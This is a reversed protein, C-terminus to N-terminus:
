FGLRNIPTNSRQLNRLIPLKNFLSNIKTDTVTLTFLYFQFDGFPNVTFALNWCDLSRRLQFRSPTLEKEIFEYGISTNFSWKPTLKFAINPINVTATKQFDFTGKVRDFRRRVSYDLNLSFSWDTRYPEVSMDNFNPQIAGFISQDLPDYFAPYAIGQAKIGRPGGSFRTSARISLSNLLFPRRSENFLLTNTRTGTSDYAYFDFNASVTIAIQNLINSRLNSSLNSLPNREAAFNYSTNFSLNDILRITEEKKVGTSDRDIKKTELSNNVSFTISQSRGANPGGVIGGEFISYTRGTTDGQVPRYYGWQDDSFDPTYTYGITPRLTHRFGKYAGLRQQSIGYITTAVNFSTDFTRASAFGTIREDVTTQQGNEDTEVSRRITSPYWYENFRVSATGTTAGSTFLNGNISAAQRFGAQFHQDDNTVAEYKDRDFLADIWNIDETNLSDIPSFRYNTNLANDYNITVSEYWKANNSSAENQFPTLPQIRFTASPLTLSTVGTAFNSSQDANINISYISEPHRYTYNLRSTTSVEARDGIDFSNQQNYQSTRLNINASIRAFPSIDQNHSLAFNQQRSQSYSPDTPELGQINSFGYQVNGSYRKAKNSYNARTDFNFSGSTFYDLSAEGTLYENFVQFWGMNTVGLGRNNQDQFAYTPTLLGSEREEINSPIYGFPFVFPYPIDMIYLMADTFFIQEQDVVKMRRAKIYYNPVPVDCPSYIGNRVFIVDQSTNKVQGGRLKGQPVTIEAQNFKGKNTEYNFLIRNSRIRDADRELIPYSLTDTDDLSKASVLSSDLNLSVLGASLRGAEHNVQARGYLKAERNGKLRFVLSDSAQFEVSGKQNGVGSTTSSPLPGLNPPMAPSLTSDKPAAAGISAKLTTDAVVTKLATSDTKVPRSKSVSDAVITQASLLNVPIIFFALVVVFVSSKLSNINVFLGLTQLLIKTLFSLIPMACFVLHM